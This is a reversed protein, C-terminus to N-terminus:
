APVAVPEKFEHLREIIARHRQRNVELLNLSAIRTAKTWGNDFVFMDLYYDMGKELNAMYDDWGKLKRSDPESASDIEEEIYDLYMSLEKIFLNPRNPHTILNGRGYIHSLMERLSAEKTFYALNPGPCVSVGPGEMRTDMGHSKLTAVGLGNCICSKATIQKLEKKYEEASLKKNDLEEIKARQYQRSATCIPKEGFENNLLIFKRTCPAGPKGAKIRELQEVDRSAGKINNFRVGVPSVESLFYDEEGGKALLDITEKDISVAEPVLLFPSGWGISDLGYEQTLFTHEENTGVGGQATLRMEPAATPLTKNKAILAKSYIEFLEQRLSERNKSFEELIPGMLFGQTAFAHGGCNLGSEVRFESIWLGKKAFIKGQIIASRYDSVKLTLKKRFSGNSDPYFDEFQEIYSYLRANMGASLVISSNLESQAFGRFSAHADNYESPLLQGDKYNAKDLKSMINVDISGPKYHEELTELILGPSAGASVASLRHKLETTDPLLEIFNQLEEKKLAILEKFEKIKNNVITQVTNLYATIRAARYDEMKTTIPSFPLKYKKSYLERMRETLIDDVLSIASSIGLHALKIPTDMTYGIGMVPIHFTHLHM